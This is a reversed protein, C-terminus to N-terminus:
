SSRLRAASLCKFGGYRPVGDSISGIYQLPCDPVLPLPLVIVIVDTICDTSAFGVELNFEPHCYTSFTQVSIWWAAFHGKCIFVFALEFAVAWTAIIIITATTVRRFM